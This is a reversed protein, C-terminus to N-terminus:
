YMVLPPEFLLLSFLGMLFFFFSVSPRQHEVTSQAQQLRRRQYSRPQQSEDQSNRHIGVPQGQAACGVHLVLFFFCFSIVVASCMSMVCSFSDAREANVCVLLLYIFKAGRLVHVDCLEVLGSRMLMFFINGPLFYIEGQAEEM